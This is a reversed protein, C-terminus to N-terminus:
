MITLKFNFRRPKKRLIAQRRKNRLSTLLKSKVTREILLISFAILCAGALLALLPAIELLNVPPLDVKHAPAATAKERRWRELIGSTRLRM